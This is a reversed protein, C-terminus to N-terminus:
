ENESRNLILQTKDVIKKRIRNIYVMGGMQYHPPIRLHTVTVSTGPNVDKLKIKSFSYEIVKDIVSSNTKKDIVNLLKGIYYPKTYAAKRGGIYFEKTNNKISYKDTIIADYTSIGDFVCMNNDLLSEIRHIKGNKKIVFPLSNELLRVYEQFIKHQFGGSRSGNLLYDVMEEPYRNILNTYAQYTLQKHKVTFDSSNYLVNNNQSEIVNKLIEIKKQLENKIQLKSLASLDPSTLNDKNTYKNNISATDLTLHEINSYTTPHHMKKLSSHEGAFYCDFYPCSVISANDIPHPIFRKCDPCHYGSKNHKAFTGFLLVKKPDLTKNLSIKCEECKFIQSHMIITNIGLYLCGPCLYETKKRSVITANKKCYSNVIYFLYSDLENTPLNKNIFTICGTKLENKLSEIVAQLSLKDYTKYYCKHVTAISKEHKLIFNEVLKDVDFLNYTEM